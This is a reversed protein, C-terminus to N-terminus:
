FKQYLVTLTNTALKFTQLNSTVYLINSKLSKTIYATLRSIMTYFKGQQPVRPNGVTYLEIELKCVRTSAWKIQTFSWFQHTCVNNFVIKAHACLATFIHWVCSISMVLKAKTQWVVHTLVYSIYSTCTGTSYSYAVTKYSIPKKINYYTDNSLIM